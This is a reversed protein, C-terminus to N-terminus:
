PWRGRMCRSYASNYLTSRQIGRSAGGVVAGAGAGRGAGRGGDVIGGIVAGGLAGRVVGGMAGGRSYRMSYDCAYERCFQSRSSQAFSTTTLLAIGLTAFGIAGVMKRWGPSGVYHDLKLEKCHNHALSGMLDHTHWLQNPSYQVTAWHV